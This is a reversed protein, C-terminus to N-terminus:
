QPSGNGITQRSPFCSASGSLSSGTAGGVDVNNKKWQYSLPVTGAASVSLKAPLGAYNTLPEPQVQIFPKLNSGYAAAYHSQITSASLPYNYIAVEDFQSFAGELAPLTEQIKRVGADSMGLDFIVTRPPHAM